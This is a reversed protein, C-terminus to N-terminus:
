GPEMGQSKMASLAAPSKLFKILERAAEPAKSNAGIAGAFVIYTQLEAPLPGVLAVGPTTLIQTANVMGLEIEGKAVLESVIDTEPLTLKSKVTETLGIREIVQAVYLGSQGEKLYGISKAAILARKFAEVTSVDPKPAGARVEVGIGSRVLTTRTDAALKGDKVLGDVQGPAAVLLDFAEGANVLRVAAIALEVRVSIKHGTAQEFQPGIEALLTAVARPALVKIEAADAATGAFLALTAVAFLASRMRM